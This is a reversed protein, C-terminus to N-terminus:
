RGRKVPIATRTVPQGNLRSAFAERNTRSEVKRGLSRMVMGVRSVRTSLVQSAIGPARMTWPRANDSFAM